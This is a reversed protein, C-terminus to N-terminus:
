CKMLKCQENKTDEPDKHNQEESGPDPDTCYCHCQCFNLFFYVKNEIMWFHKRPYAKFHSPVTQEPNPDADANIKPEKSGSGFQCYHPVLVSGSCKRKIHGGMRKYRCGVTSTYNLVNYNLSNSSLGLNLRLNATKFCKSFNLNQM